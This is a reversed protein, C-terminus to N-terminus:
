RNGYDKQNFAGKSTNFRSSSAQAHTSAGSLSGTSSNNGRSTGPQPEQVNLRSRNQEVRTNQRNELEGQRNNIDQLRSDIEKLWTAEVM